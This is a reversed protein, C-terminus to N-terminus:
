HGTSSSLYIRLTGVKTVPQQQGGILGLLVALMGFFSTLVLALGAATEPESQIAYIPDAKATDVFDFVKQRIFAVPDDKFTVETDVHEEDDDTSTDKKTEEELKKKIEWTEDALKNADDVSHGIYINDFLIDETM